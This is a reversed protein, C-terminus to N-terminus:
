VKVLLVVFMFFFGAVDALYPLTLYPLTLYPLVVCKENEYDANLM